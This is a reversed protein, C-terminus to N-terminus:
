HPVKDVETKQYIDLDVMELGGKTKDGILTLRKIKESKNNWLFKFFLTNLLNIIPIPTHTSQMLYTFKPLLTAKIMTIKGYFTLKRCNWQNILNKVQEIKDNWNKEVCLKNDHGFYM